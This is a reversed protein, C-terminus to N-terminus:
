QAIEMVTFSSAGRAGYGSDDTDTQTRNVYVTGSGESGAYINYTIPSTTNPSDLYEMPWCGCVNGDAWYYRGAVGVRNSAPTGAGIKTSGRAFYTYIQTTASQGNGYISATLLIKSSAKKPTITVSLGTIIAGGSAITSTTTFTTNLHAQQVQLVAGPMYIVQGSSMNIVNSTLGQFNDVSITSM